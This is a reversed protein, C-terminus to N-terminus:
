TNKFQLRANVKGSIAKQVAEDWDSKSAPDASEGDSLLSLGSLLGGVDDSNTLSYYNELFAYMALYAHEKSIKIDDM